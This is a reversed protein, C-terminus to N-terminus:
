NELIKCLTDPKEFHKNDRHERLHAECLIVGCYPCEFCVELWCEQCVRM